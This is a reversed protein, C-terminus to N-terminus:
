GLKDALADVRERIAPLIKDPSEFQIDPFEWFEVQAIWTPQYKRVMPEHETRDMAISLRAQELHAEDLTQPMRHNGPDIGLLELYELAYPSIAGVNRHMHAELGKSFARLSLGNTDALHNFYIEAFRSRYYNGTCIFLVDAM